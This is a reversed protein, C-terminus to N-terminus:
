LEDLLFAEAKRSFASVQTRQWTQDMGLEIAMLRAVEPAIDVSARADLILSRTRHALVDYVTQALEQRVGYLVEAKLYPLNPHLPERLDPNEECLKLVVEKDSGYADLHNGAEVRDTWGHLKLEETPCTRRPLGAFLATQTVTEEAMKRYTTWKGGAISILGNRSITLHHSRSLSSTRASTDGCILPRIGAFASLVDARKPARSLYSGAHKLLFDIEEQLPRPEMDSADLLTDTTGVMVRNRWPVMFIIRGDDTHPVMIATEGPDFMPDLVLHVGQSPVILRSSEPRDMARLHDVFPGTANVVARAQLEYERRGLEERAQVGKVVSSSDKILGTVKVHNLVTGGLDAVTRALTVALRADDFQGDHYIVGGRLGERKLAPIYGLTSARSLMKSKGFGLKGALMDYIKLGVGYFPREWWKYDPVVFAQNFVLHPANKLLLGREHLAEMVLAINGQQLYRVGGHILKTSRSSTAQAFDAQELVLTSYGRAAADVGVGLGTAGGGVVIIDWTRSTDELARIMEKRDM